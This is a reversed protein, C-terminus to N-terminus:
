TYIQRVYDRVMRSASFEPGNTRLSAKVRALWARPLGDDDRDYFAPV